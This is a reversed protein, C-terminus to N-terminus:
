GAGGGAALRDLEALAERSPRDYWVGAAPGREPGMGRLFLYYVGGFHRDYEYGPLRQGLYRHVALTYLLYQLDYRHAAIAAGLAQPAYDQPRDGLHNSKYDALYYRGGWEFVLDVFGRLLGRAPNFALRGGEATWGGLRALVQDLAEPTVRALPYAFELEDRRRAREIQRLCLGDEGLPTDLVQGIAEALPSAWERPYASRDLERAVAALLSPGRATPFDIGELLRHLMVGTCAGRPLALLDGGPARGATEEGPAPDYDPREPDHGRVLASYSTVRWERDIRGTFSRATLGARRGAPGAWRRGHPPPPDHLAIGQPLARALEALPGHVEADETEALEPPGEAGAPRLLYALASGEAGQVAGWSLYVRYRARTLAVYLLRLDEALRERRALELQEPGPPAGLDVCARGTAPDHYAAPDRARVPRSAWPFPLFVVPYELGKSRHVTVLSVVDEDSELRLEETEDGGQEGATRDALWRLLGEPQPHERAAVQLIEALQLLDTLRREGDPLALLRPAVGEERLMREIAPLPGRERWRHLWGRLREGVAEAAVEDRGIRDIESASRGLLVTALAARLRGEDDPAIVAGLVRGLEVATESAYVSDRSLFASAVGAARLAGQVEAAEFRDRVLVAADRAQFPRGDVLLDGACGRELLDVLTDACARAVRARAWERTILRPARRGTNEETRALTWCLVPVPEGGSLRLGSGERPLAVAPQFPIGELVFPRPTRGFLANVVGVLAPTSRRNAPLTYRGEGPDTDARAELYTFVDAGRFGYIAQKPDGVLILTRDAALGYVTRLIRYQTPDTDQFEDVLAAPYRTRLREALVEGGPGALADALQGLLDDFSVVRRAAKRAALGERLAAAAEGLFAVRVAAFAGPHRDVYAGWPALFPHEPPEGGKRTSAALKAPTFLEALEPLGPTPYPGALHRDLDAAATAVRDARYVNQKLPAAAITALVEERGTQWAQRARAFAEVLAAWAGPGDVAPRLLPPAPSLFPAVAGLLDLPTRWCELVWELEAAEAGYLRRRWFDEAVELRLAREDALLEAGYLAGSEFAHEQLVRQCFGHITFIAAEDLRTMADALRGCAAGAEGVAALLASLTADTTAGGEAVALAELLRRRVRDRLEATAANTYTVVLVEPVELGRELLLRLYLTTLAYTKGSGASAEVLRVGTLPLTLPDLARM